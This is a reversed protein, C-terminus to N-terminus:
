LASAAARLDILGAECLSPDPRGPPAGDDGDLECRDGRRYALGPGLSRRHDNASLRNYNCPQSPDSETVTATQPERHNANASPHGCHCWPLKSTEGIAVKELRASSRRALRDIM